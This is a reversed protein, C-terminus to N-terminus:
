AAVFDTMKIERKGDGFYYNMSLSGILTVKEPLEESLYKQALFFGVLDYRSTYLRLHKESSIKYATDNNLEATVKILPKPVGAGFPELREMESFFSDGIVDYPVELDWQLTQEPDAPLNSAQMNIAARFSELAKEDAEITLGAAMMHGGYGLVLDKCSEIANLIHFGDVSRASGTWVTKGDANQKSAFVISPRNFEEKLNGSLLGVVGSPADKACLVIVKDGEAIRKEAEPLITQFANQQIKKRQENITIIQRALREADNARTELLMILPLEAGRRNLRGSANICPSLKFAIDEATIHRMDKM